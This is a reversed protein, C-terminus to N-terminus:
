SRCGTETVDVDVLKDTKRLWTQPDKIMETMDPYLALLSFESLRDDYGILIVVKQTLDVSIIEAVKRSM